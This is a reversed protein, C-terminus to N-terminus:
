LPFTTNFLINVQAIDLQYNESPYFVKGNTINTLYKTNTSLKENAANDSCVICLGLMPSYVYEGVNITSFNRAANVQISKDITLTSM